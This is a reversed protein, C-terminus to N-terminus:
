YDKFPLSPMKIEPINVEPMKWGSDEQDSPAKLTTAGSDADSDSPYATTVSDAGGSIAAMEDESIEGFQGELYRAFFPIAISNPNQPNTNSMHKGKIYGVKHTSFRYM